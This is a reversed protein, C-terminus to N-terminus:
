YTHIHYKKLERNLGKADGSVVDLLDWFEKQHNKIKTHVLEHLIVYDILEDSLRMLHLNLNINNIYSCSGWRTKANKIIVKNYDFDFKDAFYKVRKPLYIKADKRLIKEIEKRILLQCNSSKIINKKPILIQISNNNYKSKIKDISSLKFEISSLKTNFIFGPTFILRTSKLQEIKAIHSKIWNIKSIVFSKASSFSVFLPVFVRVGKAENISIRISKSSSKAIFLIDIDKIKIKKKKLLM